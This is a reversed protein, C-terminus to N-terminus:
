NFSLMDEEHRWDFTKRHYESMGHGQLAKVHAKTGYGKNKDWGYMPFIKHYECMLADRKCKAIISAAAISVSLADGHVIAMNAIDCKPADRGDFLIYDPKISLSDLARQMALHTANLINIEDITKEDVSGIAYIINKNASIRQLVEERKKPTLKKSDDVGEIFIGHPIICAVAFVPGALSGRGVEDVGAINKYGKQWLEEEYRLLKQLRKCESRQV